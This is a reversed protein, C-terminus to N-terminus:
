NRFSPIWQDLLEEPPIDGYLYGYYLAATFVLPVYDRSQRYPILECFIDPPLDGWSRKWKRLNGPGANYAILMDSLNNVYTRQNLWYIYRNALLLNSAPDTLDPDELGLIRAHEEATATMLQALGVAGSYSVIQRDYASEIRVLGHLLWPSHGYERSTEGVEGSFALPHLDMLTTRNMQFHELNRSDLASHILDYYNENRRYLASIYPQSVLTIESHREKLYSVAQEEMGRQILTTFVIDAPSREEPEPLQDPLNMLEESPVGLIWRSLFGYWSLPSRGSIERYLGEASIDTEELYGHELLRAWVWFYRSSVQDEDLQLLKRGTAEVATWDRRRLQLALIDELQGNYYAPDELSPLFRPLEQLVQEEGRDAASDLLYWWGRKDPGSLRFYEVAKGYDGHNRYIRGLAFALGPRTQAETALSGCITAWSDQLALGYWAQYLLDPNLALEPFSELLVAYLSDARGYEKLILATRYEILLAIRDEMLAPYERDLLLQLEEWVKESQMTLLSEATINKEQLLLQYLPKEPFSLEEAWSQAKDMKGQLTFERVSFLLFEPPIDESRHLHTIKRLVWRSDPSDMQMLAEMSWPYESTEVVEKLIEERGEPDEELLAEIFLDEAKTCSCFFLSIFLLLSFIKM